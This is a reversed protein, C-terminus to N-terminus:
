LLARAWAGKRSIARGCSSWHLSNVNKGQRIDSWAICSGVVQGKHNLLFLLNDDNGRGPYKEVFYQMAEEVSSFDGLAYELRAWDVEFGNKYPVITYGDPLKIQQPHYEDCRLITNYFPITRNLM